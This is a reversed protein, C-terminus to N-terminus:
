TAFAGQAQDLADGVLLSELHQVQGAGSAEIREGVLEDHELSWRSIADEGRRGLLGGLRLEVVVVDPVVARVVPM